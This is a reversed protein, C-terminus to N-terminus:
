KYLEIVNLGFQSQAFKRRTSRLHFPSIYVDSPHQVPHRLNRQLYSESAIEEIRHNLPQLPESTLSPSGLPGVEPEPRACVCAPLHGPTHASRRGGGLAFASLTRLMRTRGREVWGRGRGDSSM